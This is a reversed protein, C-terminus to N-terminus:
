IYGIVALTPYKNIFEAVLPKYTYHQNNIKPLEDIKMLIKFAEAETGRARIVYVSEELEHQKTFVIPLYLNSLIHKPLERELQKLEEKNFYHKGGGITEVYPTEMEILTTFREVRKPLNDNISKLTHSLWEDIRSSM